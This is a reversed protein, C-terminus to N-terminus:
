SHKLVIHTVVKGADRCRDVAKELLEYLDKLAMVRLPDQGERYLGQMLELILKDADGEIKQLRDNQQKINELDAGKRLSRVMSVVQATAEELLDAHRAFSADRVHAVCIIFREAFKEVTKPIRYLAHSLEEIDERELASVFSRILEQGIEETIRKENRRSKVFEELSPTSGPARLLRNLTQVSTRAEEASAELLGFFKDDKGLLKQLSFM